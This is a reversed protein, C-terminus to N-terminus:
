LEGWEKYDPDFPNVNAWKSTAIREVLDAMSHIGCGWFRTVPGYHLGYASVPDLINRFNRGTTATHKALLPGKLTGQWSRLSNRPSWNLIVKSKQIDGWMGPANFTVFPMGTWHGMVQAIAGGLSHGVFSVARDPYIARTRDFLRLAAGCYQPLMGVLGGIAIQADAVLDGAKSLVTGQFAVVVEPFRHSVYVCGKFDTRTAGWSMGEEFLDAKHDGVEYTDPHDANGINYVRSAMKAYDLTVVRGM